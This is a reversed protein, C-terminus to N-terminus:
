VLGIVVGGPAERGPACWSRRPRRAEFPCSRHCPLCRNLDRLDALRHFDVAHLELDALDPCAALALPARQLHTPDIALVAVDPVAVLVRVAGHDDRVCEPPLRASWWGVGPAERGPSWSRRLVLM